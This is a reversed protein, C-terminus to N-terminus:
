WTGVRRLHLGCVVFTFAGSALPAVLTLQSGLSGHISAPAATAPLTMWGVFSLGFAAGCALQGRTLEFSTYRTEERSFEIAFRGLAYLMVVLLARAGPRAGDDSLVAVAAFTVLAHLGSLLQAPVRPVKAADGLERVIRSEPQRWVIGSDCPRGGCCGYSACGLRGVASAILSAPLAVDIVVLYPVDFTRAVAFTAALLGLYGGWSVFGVRRLEEVPRELFSGFRYLRAVLWGGGLTAATAGLVLTVVATAGCVPELRAALLATASLAGLAAFLGFTVWVTPGIRFLVPTDALSQFLPSVLRWVRDAAGAVFSSGPFPRVSRAYAGFHEGHRRVLRPEEFGLAHIAAGSALLTSAVVGVGLSGASLGFGAFAVTYGVYIPHRFLAYAGRTVLLSPPLHSMPLGRGRVSLGIMGVLMLAAGFCFLVLGHAELAPHPEFGLLADARRGFAFLTAPLVGFFAVVYAFAIAASRLPRELLLVPTKM